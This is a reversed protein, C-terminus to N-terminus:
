TTYEANIRVYDYSLDCSWITASEDGQDLDIQVDLVKARMADILAPEDFEAPGGNAFVTVGNIVVVVRAPDFYVGARGAAAVIRGWNPDNGFCATKVLPSEAVTRGVQAAAVESSAGTVTIDVRKTAGEGDQAVLQALRISIATLAALFHDYAPGSSPIEGSGCANALILAMDNTSTDGDVTVRNFSRDMAVGLAHQLVTYDIRADCTLFCLTTAMNPAIMGSGKCMGGIRLEGTWHPSTVIVACQKAFTDTTRIAEAAALDAAAGQELAAVASPMGQVIKHYPVQRGIIGTAAVLVQQADIGLATATLTACDRTVREGEAGTCANANGAKCFIAQAIGGSVVAHSFDVSSARVLNTTFVGAAAAPVESVILALDPRTRRIGCATSGTRFGLPYTVGHGGVWTLELGDPVLAM